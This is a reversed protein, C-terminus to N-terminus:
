LRWLWTRGGRGREAEFPRIGVEFPRIGAEVAKDRSGRGREAEVAVNPRM